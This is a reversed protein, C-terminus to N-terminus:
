MKGRGIMYGLFKIQLQLFSCKRLNIKLGAQTMMELVWKLHRLHQNENKSFMCIDELYCLVFKNLAERLIKTVIKQFTFPANKLGFPLLNWVYCGDQTIFGTKEKDSDAIEVLHYASELDIETFFAAKQLSNFLNETHPLPFTQKM